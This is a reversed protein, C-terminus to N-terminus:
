LRSGLLIQAELLEPLTEMLQLQIQSISLEPHHGRLQEYTLAALLEYTGEPQSQAHNLWMTLVPSLEFFRCRHTDVTRYLAVFTHHPQLKQTLVTEAAQAQLQDLLASIPYTFPELSLVPNLVPHWQKFTEMTSPVESRYPVLDQNPYSLIKAELWECYALEQLYPLKAIWQTKQNLFEPFSEALEVFHFSQPPMAVMFEACLAKWTGKGAMAELLQQSYPFINGLAEELNAGIMYQYQVVRELPQQLLAERDAQSLASTSLYQALTEKSQTSQRGESTMLLAQVTEQYAALSM